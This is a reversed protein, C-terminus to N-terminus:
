SQSSEERGTSGLRPIGRGEDQSQCSHRHSETHIEGLRPKRSQQGRPRPSDSLHKPPPRWPRGLSHSPRRQQSPTQLRPLRTKSSHVHEQPISPRAYTPPRLLLPRPSSQQQPLSRPRPHRSQSHKLPHTSVQPLSTLLIGLIRSRQVYWSYIDEQPPFVTKGAGIEKKIFRKLELFEKSLVEDKLQALWTEHLTEIELKLLDKQEATLKDVWKVKDFKLAPPPTANEEISTGSVKATTSVTKPPGFFATISSDQKPKKGSTLGTDVAKRKLSM